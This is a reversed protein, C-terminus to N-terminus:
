RRSPVVVFFQERGHRLLLPVPTRGRGLERIAQAASAVRRGNIAMIRASPPIGGDVLAAAPLVARAEPETTSTSESARSLAAVDYALATKVDFVRTRGARRVTVSTATEPALGRLITLATDVAEIKNDGVAILVDGASLGAREAPAGEVVASVLAGDKGFVQILSPTLEQLSIGISVLREGAAARTSLESVAKLASFAEGRLGAIAVLEGDITYVPLGPAVNGDTATLQYRDGASSRIFLPVVVDSAESMGIGAVLTGPAPVNLTLPASPLQPGSTKLLVLETSPEYAAVEAPRPAGEIAAITVTSRGELAAAHTLIFGDAVVVGPMAASRRTITASFDGRISPPVSAPLLAVGHHRVRRALDEIRRLPQSEVRPQMKEELLPAAHEQSAPVVRPSAPPAVLAGSVLLVASALAVRIRTSVAGLLKATRETSVPESQTM